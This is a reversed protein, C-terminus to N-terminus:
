GELQEICEQIFRALQSGAESDFSVVIGATEDVPLQLVVANEFAHVHAEVDGMAPGAAGVRSGIAQVRRAAEALAALGDDSYVARVDDRLTVVEIGDDDYVFVGRLYQGARRDCFEVLRRAREQVM